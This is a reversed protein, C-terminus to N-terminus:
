LKIGIEDLPNCPQGGVTVSVTMDHGHTELHPEEPIKYFSSM